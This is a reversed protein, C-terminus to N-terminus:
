RGRSRMFQNWVPEALDARLKAVAGMATFVDVHNQKALERTALALEPVPSDLNDGGPARVRGTVLGPAYGHTGPALAMADLMNLASFTHPTARDRMRKAIRDRM